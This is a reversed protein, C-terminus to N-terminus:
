VINPKTYGAYKELNIWTWVLEWPLVELHASLWVSPPPVSVVRVEKCGNFFAEDSIPDNLFSRLLNSRLGKPPENTMKVGSHCVAASCLQSIGAGLLLVCIVVLFSDGLEFRCQRYCLGVPLLRCQALRLTNNLTQSHRWRTYVVAHM